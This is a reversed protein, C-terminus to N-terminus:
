LFSHLASSCYKPIWPYLLNHFFSSWFIDSKQNISSMSFFRKDRLIICIDFFYWLWRNYIQFVRWFTIMSINRQILHYIVVLHLLGASITDSNVISWRTWNNYKCNTKIQMLFFCSFRNCKLFYLFILSDLLFLM